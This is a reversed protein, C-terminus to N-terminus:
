GFWGWFNNKVIENLSSATKDADSLEAPSNFPTLLGVTRLGADKAATIGCGSDEITVCEDSKQGLRKLTEIYLDPYPKRRKGDDGTVIANFYDSFLENIHMGEFVTSLVKEALNRKSSSCIGLPINKKKSWNLIEELGPNPELRTKDLLSDYVENLKNIYEEIDIDIGFDDKIQVINERISFGLFSKHYDLSITINYPVFVEQFAKYYFSETEAIVGDIDFILAKLM